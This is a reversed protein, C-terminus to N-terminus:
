LDSDQAHKRLALELTDLVIYIAAIPVMTCVLAPVYTWWAGTLVASHDYAHELVMGWSIVSPDGLGFFELASISLLGIVVVFKTVHLTWTLMQPVVPKVWRRHERDEQERCPTKRAAENPHSLREIVIKASPAWGILLIFIWIRSIVTLHAGTSVIAALIVFFTLSLFADAFITAVGAGIKFLVYSERMVAMALLWTAISAAACLLVILLGDIVFSRSGYVLLSYIDRGVHDTGLPHVFRSTPSERFSPPIPNMPGDPYTSPELNSSSDPNPVTSIVPAAIAAVVTVCLLLLALMGVWSGSYSVRWIYGLSLSPGPTLIEDDDKAASSGETDLSLDAPLQRQSAKYRALVVLLDFLFNTVAVIIAIIFVCSVLLTLDRQIVAQWMLSGLGNYWFPLDIILVCVMTWGILFQSMPVIGPISSTTELLSRLSFSSSASSGGPRTAVPNARKVTLASIGFTLLIAGLIALAAFLPSRHDLWKLSPLMLLALGSAPISSILTLAIEVLRRPASSRKSSILNGVIWGIIMSIFVAAAFVALTKALPAYIHASVPEGKFASVSIFFKGTFMKVLFNGYQVPLPDNLRLDHIIKEGLQQNMGRPIFNNAPNAALVFFVAFIITAVVWVSLLFMATKKLITWGIEERPEM